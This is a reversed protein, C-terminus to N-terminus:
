SHDRPWLNLLVASAVVSAAIAAAGSLTVDSEDFLMGHIVIAIGVVSAFTALVALVVRFETHVM